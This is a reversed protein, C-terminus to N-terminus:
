CLAQLGVTAAAELYLHCKPLHQKSSHRQVVSGQMIKQIHQMGLHYHHTTTDPMM